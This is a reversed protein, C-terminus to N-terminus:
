RVRKFATDYLNVYTEVGYGRLRALYDSWQADTVGNMIFNTLSRDVFSFLDVQIQSLKDNEDSSFKVIPISPLTLYPIVIDRTINQHEQSPVFRQPASPLWWWVSYNTPCYQVGEQVGVPPNLQMRAGDPPVFDWYMGQPGMRMNNSHVDNDCFLDVWRMSIEPHKNVKTINFRGTNSGQVSVMKGHVGPRGSPGSLPPLLQYKTTLYDEITEVYGQPRGSWDTHFNVMNGFTLGVGMETRTKGQLQQLNQSFSEPDLLGESYLRNFYRIGELYGTQMPTFLTENRENIMIHRDNDVVGWSGFMNVISFQMDPLGSANYMQFSFPIENPYLAKFAKLVNYLDETTKPMNLGSKALWETNLWMYNQIPSGTQGINQMPVAYIHGNPYVMAPRIEPVEKMGKLMNPAYADILDELPILFGQEGYTLIINDPIPWGWFSDPLDSSALMLRTREAWAAEEIEIFNIYVNTLKEYDRMMPM